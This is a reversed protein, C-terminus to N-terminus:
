DPLLSGKLHVVVFASYCPLQRPPVLVPGLDGCLKRAGDYVAITIQKSLVLAQAPNDHPM